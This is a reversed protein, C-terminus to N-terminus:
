APPPLEAALTAFQPVGLGSALDYGPKASHGPVSRLYRSNGSVVDWFSAPAARDLYYFLGNAPGVPPRHTRRQDASLIAMAAAVLPASGSTGADTIWHPALVVPWGPFASAVASVDPTTRRDGPLGLGQQFPPRPSVLSFGGGGAEGGATESLWQLDNWVVENTRQNLRNLTLQTGGVATVYPSSAPWAVGPYPSGNCTSGFDGASAYAGVGALGLRVLLSDMLDAGARTTPTARRGRIAKECEGYSISLTDPLGRADLVQAAGIFWLEPALWTQTFTLSRLGPAIGRVVSLDEQPEFTGRGFRRAGDPLLTRSRLSPYGFCRANASIDSGTVSEGVNLIAMKAGAGSGLRNIGYAQRVQAFSFGGTRRAKACGRIWTGTRKPPTSRRRRVLGRRLAPATGTSPAWHSYSPVVDQVLPRLARPLLLRGKGKLFYAFHNPFNSFESVIRGHFVRDFQSVTGSVRAFVNSPDIRSSLGLTRIERGFRTRTSRSAGYRAAVRRPSLFRRYSPSWPRQVAYFAAVAQAEPRKLGFYFTIRPGAPAASATAAGGLAILAGILLVRVAGRMDPVM